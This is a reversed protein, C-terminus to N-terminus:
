AVYQYDEDSVESYDVTSPAEYGDTFTLFADAAHSHEDHRPSSAWTAFKDNWEYSWSELHALGVSIGEGAEDFNCTPIKQRATM